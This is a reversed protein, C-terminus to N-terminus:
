RKSRMRVTRTATNGSTKKNSIATRQETYYIEPNKDWVEAWQPPQDWNIKDDWHITRIFVIVAAKAYCFLDFAENNARTPNVWGDETRVEATLEDYFSQELWDPFHIYDRGPETRQLYGFLSDKLITTNVLWLPLIDIVNAARAASSDKDPHTLTVIRKGAKPKPREGKVLVFRRDLGQSELMVWFKYAQQTVGRRGGSDCAVILISMYRGSNDDLEYRKFIVQDRILMWDELYSAPNAPLPDGDDDMRKSKRIEYRDIVWCEDDIGYGVVQVSFGWKQVDVSGVLYRVGACVMREPLIEARGKYDSANVTIKLRNPLHPAGFDTNIVVKLNEEAGTIEFEQLANLYKQLQNELNAYAAFIGPFWFSAIRVKKRNGVLKKDEVACGDPVWIHKKNMARKHEADILCGNKTCIFRPPRTILTDTIGFLDRNHLFHLAEVSPSPMFYEGCEPCLVYYRRMDGM